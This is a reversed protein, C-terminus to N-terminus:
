WRTIIPIHTHTVHKQINIIFFQFLFNVSCYFVRGRYKEGKVIAKHKASVHLDDHIYTLKFIGTHM